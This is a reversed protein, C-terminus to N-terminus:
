VRKHEASGGEPGETEGAAPRRRGQGEKPAAVGEATKETSTSQQDEKNSAKKGEGENDDRVVKGVTQNVELNKVELQVAVELVTGSVHLSRSPPLGVGNILVRRLSM